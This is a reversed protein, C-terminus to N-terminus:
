SIHREHACFPGREVRAADGLLHYRRIFRKPTTSAEYLITARLIPM